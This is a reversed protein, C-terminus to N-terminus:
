QSKNPRKKSRSGMESSNKENGSYDEYWNVTGDANRHIERTM